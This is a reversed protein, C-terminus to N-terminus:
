PEGRLAEISVVTCKWLRGEDTVESNGFLFGGELNEKCHEWLCVVNGSGDKMQRKLTGLFSGERLTRRATSGYVSQVNGSGDKMQREFNGTFSGRGPVRAPSRNLSTRM